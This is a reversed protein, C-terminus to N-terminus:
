AACRRLGTGLAANITNLRQVLLDQLDDTKEGAVTAFFDSLRARFSIQEEAEVTVSRWAAREPILVDIDRVRKGMMPNVDLAAQPHSRFLRDLHHSDVVCVATNLLAKANTHRDDNALLANEGAEVLAICV